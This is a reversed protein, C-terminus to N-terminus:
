IIDILILLVHANSLEYYEYKKQKLLNKKWKLRVIGHHATHLSYILDISAKLYFFSEFVYIMVGVLQGRAM